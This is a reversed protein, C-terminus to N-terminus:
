IKYMGEPAELALGKEILCRYDFHHANLWDFLHITYGYFPKTIIKEEDVLIDVKSSNRHFYLREEDTMSRMPRLYPKYDYYETNYLLENLIGTTLFCKYDTDNNTCRVVVNYPLRASLDKLLLQKDEQTIIKTNKIGCVAAYLINDIPEKDEQTM